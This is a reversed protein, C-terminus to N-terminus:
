LMLFLPVFVGARGSKGRCSGLPCSLWADEAGAVGAFAAEEDFLKLQLVDGAGALGTALLGAV